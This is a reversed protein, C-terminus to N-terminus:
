NVGFQDKALRFHGRGRNGYWSIKQDRVDVHVSRTHSYTGIGGVEDQLQAYGVIQSPRVGAIQIDAAKCYRHQSHRRGYARFGSTVIVPSGFHKSMRGLVLRLSAPFCATVVRPTQKILFAAEEKSTPADRQRPARPSVVETEEGVDDVQAKDGPLSPAPRDTLSAPAAMVPKMRREKRALDRLTLAAALNEGGAGYTRVTLPTAGDSTAGEETAAPAAASSEAPAEEKRTGRAARSKRRAEAKARRKQRSSEAKPKAAPEPAPQAEEVPEAAAPNNYREDVEARAAVASFTLCLGITACGLLARVGVAM